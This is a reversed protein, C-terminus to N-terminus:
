GGGDDKKKGSDKKGGLLGKILTKAADATENDGEQDGGILKDVLEDAKQNIKDKQSAALAAVIDVGIRPEYMSGTLRIPIPVGKLQAINQEALQGSLVPELVYDVTEDVLNFEGKGTASLLPSQLV